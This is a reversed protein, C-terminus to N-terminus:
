RSSSDGAEEGGLRRFNFWSDLVGLWMIVFSLWVAAFILVGVRLLAPLPRRTLFYYLVALGQVLFVNSFFLHLNDGVVALMGLPVKLSDLVALGQGVIFGLVVWWPFRWLQFPPLGEPVPTRWRLLWRGVAVSATSGALATSLLFAPLIPRMAEFSMRALRVWDAMPALVEAPIVGLEQQHAIEQGLRDWAALFLDILDVRWGVRAAVYVLLPPAAFAVAGAILTASTAAGERWNGGISLGVLGVVLLWILMGLQFQRILESPVLGGPAGGLVAAQLGFVGFAVVLGAVVGSRYGRRYVLAALPAPVVLLLPPLFFAGCLAMVSALLFYYVGEGVGPGGAPASADGPM